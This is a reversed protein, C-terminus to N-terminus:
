NGHAQWPPGSQDVSEAGNRPNAGRLLTEQNFRLGSVGAPAKEKAITDKLSGVDSRAVILFNVRFQLSIFTSSTTPIGKGM